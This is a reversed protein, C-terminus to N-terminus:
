RYTYQYVTKSQVAGGQSPILRVLVEDVDGKANWTYHSVQNGITRTALKGAQDYTPDHYRYHHTERNQERIRLIAGGADYEIMACGGSPERCSRTQRGRADFQQSGAPYPGGKPSHRYSRISHSGSAEWAYVDRVFEGAPRSPDRMVRETIRGQADLKYTFDRREVRKTRDKYTRSALRGSADWTFDQSAVITGDPSRHELRIIHGTADYSRVERAEEKWGTGQPASYIATLRILEPRVREPDEHRLLPEARASTTWLAWIAIVALARM